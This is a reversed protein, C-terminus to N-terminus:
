PLKFICVAYKACETPVLKPDIRTAYMGVAIGAIVVLAILARKM